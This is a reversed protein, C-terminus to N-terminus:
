DNFLNKIWNDFRFVNLEKESYPEYPTSIFETIKQFDLENEILLFNEKRYLPFNIINKNTTILKTEYYISEYVRFSFETHYTPTLDLSVKSQAMAKLHVSNHVHTNLIKIKHHKSLNNINLNKKLNNVLIIQIDYNSKELYPIIKEIFLDRRDITINGIYSILNEKKLLKLEENEIYYNNGKLGKLKPYKILDDKEFLYIKQFYKRNKKLINYKYDNLADWMYGIIKRSHNKVIKLFSSDFNDPRLILVHGFFNEKKFFEKLQLCYEKNNSKNELNYIYNKNKLFLRHFINLLRDTIKSNKYRYTKQPTFQLLTANIGKKNLFLIYDAPLEGKNIILLKENKRM